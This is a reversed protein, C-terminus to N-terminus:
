IVSKVSNAVSQTSCKSHASGSASSVGLPCPDSLWCPQGLLPSLTFTCSICCCVITWIFVLMAWKYHWLTRNPTPIIKSPFVSYKISIGSFKFCNFIISCFHDMQISTSPNKKKRKRGQSIDEWNSSPNGRCKTHIDMFWLLRILIKTHAFVM